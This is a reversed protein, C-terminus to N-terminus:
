DEDEEYYDCYEDDPDMCYGDENCNIPDNEGTVCCGNVDVNKCLSM